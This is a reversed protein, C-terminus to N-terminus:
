HVTVNITEAKDPPASAVVPVDARSVIYIWPLVALSMYTIVMLLIVPRLWKRSHAHLMLLFAIVIAGTKAVFLTPAMGYAHMLARLFANGEMQVGMLKLGAFTLIGDLIQCIVLASGLILAKKSISLKGVTVLITSKRVRQGFFSVHETEGPGVQVGIRELVGKEM